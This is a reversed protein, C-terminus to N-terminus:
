GSWSIWQNGVRENRANRARIDQLADLIDTERKSDQTRHELVKMPNNEEAELKSGGGRDSEEGAITRRKSFHRAGGCLGTIEASCFTSSSTHYIRTHHLIVISCVM